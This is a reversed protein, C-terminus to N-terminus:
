LGRMGVGMTLINDNLMYVLQTIHSQSVILKNHKSNPRKSKDACWATIKAIVCSEQRYMNDTAMALNKESLLAIINHM